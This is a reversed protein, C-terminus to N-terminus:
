WARTSSRASSSSLGIRAMNRAWSCCRCTRRFCSCARRRPAAGGAASAHRLRDGRARNGVQDHNQISSSSAIARSTALRRWRAQAASAPQLARTFSRASWCAPSTEPGRRFGRLLRAERRHPLRTRRSPLRREVARRPRLRRARPTVMVRPDNMDSEAIIHAPRGTRPRRRGGGGSHRPAPAAPEPRLHRARRRPAPRRLSIRRLWMRANDIVFDRVADSGPGDYNLARGGGPRTAITSTPASSASTIGRRGSTTTSSTSFFRWDPRTAPM